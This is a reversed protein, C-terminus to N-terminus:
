LQSAVVTSFATRVLASQQEDVVALLRAWLVELTAADFPQPM